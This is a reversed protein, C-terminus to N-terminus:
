GMKEQFLSFGAGQPDAGTAILGGAIAAPGHHIVGGEAKVTAIARDLDPVVAYYGWRAWTLGPPLPMIGAIGREHEPGGIVVYQAGGDLPMAGKQTWGFLAEYFSLAAAPDPTMLEAWNFHGPAFVPTRVPRVPQHLGLPAGQPDGIVALRGNPTDERHHLKAGLELARAVTADIDAVAVFGLWMPPVQRADMEPTLALVGGVPAPGALVARYDPGWSTSTWGLVKGYFALAADPDRTYLEYWHFRPTM